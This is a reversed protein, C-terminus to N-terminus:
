GSPMSFRAAVMSVRMTTMSISRPPSRVVTPMRASLTCSTVSIGCALMSSVGFIPMAQRGSNMRQMPLRASSKTVTSSMARIKEEATGSVLLELEIAACFTKAGLLWVNVLIIVMRAVILALSAAFKM